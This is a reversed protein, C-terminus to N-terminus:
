EKGWNRLDLTGWAWSGTWEMGKPGWVSEGMIIYEVISVFVFLMLFHMPLMAWVLPPIFIVAAIKEGISWSESCDENETELENM